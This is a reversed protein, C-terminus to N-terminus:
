TINFRIYIRNEALLESQRFRSLVEHVDRMKKASYSSCIHNRYSSIHDFDTQNFICVSANIWSAQKYFRYDFNIEDGNKQVHLQPYYEENEKKVVSIEENNVVNVTVITIEKEERTAQEEPLLKAAFYDRDVKYFMNRGERLKSLDIKWVCQHNNWAKKNLNEVFIKFREQYAFCYNERYKKALVTKLAGIEEEIKNTNNLSSALSQDESLGDTDMTGGLEDAFLQLREKRERIEETIDEIKTKLENYKASVSIKMDFKLETFMGEEFTEVCWEDFKAVMEKLNLLTDANEVLKSVFAVCATATNMLMRDKKMVNNSLIEVKNLVTSIKRNVRNELASMDASMKKNLIEFKEDMKAGLKECSVNHLATTRVTLSLHYEVAEAIHKEVSKWVVKKECGCFQYPCAVERLECEEYHEAASDRAVVNGCNFKCNIPYRKCQANHSLEKKMCYEKDCYVCEVTRYPCIDHHETLDAKVMKELCGEFSCTVLVAACSNKLHADINGLDGEWTCGNNHNPCKVAVSLIMRHLLNDQYCEMKDIAKKCTPCVLNPVGDDDDDDSDDSEEFTSKLIDFCPKCLAHSCKFQIPLYMLKLCIPCYMAPLDNSVVEVDYGSEM